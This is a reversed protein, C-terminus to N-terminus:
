KKYEYKTKTASNFYGTLYSLSFVDTSKFYSLKTTEYIEFPSEDLCFLELPFTPFLSSDQRELSTNFEQSSQSYIFLEYSSRLNLQFFGPVIPDPFYKSSSHFLLQKENNKLTKNFNYKFVLKLSNEGKKLLKQPLYLRNNKVSPRFSSGNLNVSMLTEPSDLFLNYVVANLSFNILSFGKVSCNDRHDLAIRNVVNTILSHRLACEDQNLQYILNKTAPINRFRKTIRYSFFSLVGIFGAAIKKWNEKLFSLRDSSM